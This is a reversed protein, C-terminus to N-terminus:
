LHKLPTVWPLLLNEILVNVAAATLHVRCRFGESMIFLQMCQQLDSKLTHLGM